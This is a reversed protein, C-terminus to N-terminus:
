KKPEHITIDRNEGGDLRILKGTDGGERRVIELTIGVFTGTLLALVDSIDANDLATTIADGLTEIAAKSQEETITKMFGGYFYPTRLWYFHLCLVM